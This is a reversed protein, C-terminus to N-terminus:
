PQKLFNVLLPNVAEPRDYNSCHGAEDIPHFTIGPIAAKVRESLSFPLVGDERGWILFIRRDQKGVRAYAKMLPELPMNRLTSLIAELYGRYQLQRDFKGMFEPFREFKYLSSQAGKRIIGEGAVAMIYDGLLPAKALKRVFPVETPFGMPSILCVRSVWDPHRDTFTIAVAGGMSLGVLHVPTKVQLTRLLETLQEDFLDHNYAAHPRDSFGRGYHDYRLVRFGAEALAPFIKDWIFSPTTFGHILVVVDGDKPGAWEYHVMGRSLRVFSGSVAQRVREDIAPKRSVLYYYSGLLLGALVALTIITKRAM